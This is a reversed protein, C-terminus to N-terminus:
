RPRRLPACPSDRCLVAWAEDPASPRRLVCSANRANRAQTLRIKVRASQGLSACHVSVYPYIGTRFTIAEARDLLERGMRRSARLRMGVLSRTQVKPWCPLSAVFPRKLSTEAGLVLRPCRRGDHRTGFHNGGAGPDDPKEPGIKCVQHSCNNPQDM